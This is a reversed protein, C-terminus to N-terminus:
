AGGLTHPASWPGWGAADHARVKITYDPIDNVVFTATLTSGSVTRTYTGGGDSGTITIRYKDTPSDGARAAKWSAVLGDGPYGPSTWYATLGTPAGPRVTSTGTTISVAASAPSSGAADASAVTIRYTTLPELAGILAQTENGSVTATVVPATSGVPTATVTSSSILASPATPDDKWSVQFRGGLRTVTMNTPAAPALAVVIAQSLVHTGDVVGAAAENYLNDGHADSVSLTPDV